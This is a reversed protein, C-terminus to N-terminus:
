QAPLDFSNHLWAAITEAALRHGEATFHGDIPYHTVLGPTESVAQRFTPALNLFPVGQQQSWVSLRRELETEGSVWEPRVEVGSEKWAIGFDPSVQVPAPLLVVGVWLGREQSRRIIEQVLSLMVQYKAEADANDIDLSETWHYPRLLGYSLLAANFEGKNAAAVWEPRLRAQWAQIDSEPIGRARAEATVKAVLDGAGEELFLNSASLRKVETYIHPWLAHVLSKIRSRGRAHWNDIDAVTASRDIESVDNPYLAIIVGDPHYNYCVQFLIRAYEMPTTGSLGCNIFQVPREPTSLLMELQDTFRQSQEVGYGETFSDGVVAFRLTSSPKDLSVERYPIGQSNTKFEYTFELNHRIVDYDPPHTVQVYESPFGFLGLARDLLLSTVLVASLALVFGVIVTQLKDRM